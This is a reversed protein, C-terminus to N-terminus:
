NFLNRKMLLFKLYKKNQLINPNDFLLTDKWIAPSFDRGVKQRCRLQKAEVYFQVYKISSYNIKM